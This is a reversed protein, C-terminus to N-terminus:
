VPLLVCNDAVGALAQAARGVIAEASLPKIVFGDAGAEAAALVCDRESHATVMIIPTRQESRSELARIVKIFTVGNIEPMEYDVFILHPEYSLWEPLATIASDCEHVGAVLPSLVKAILMRIQANDDIVLVRADELQM